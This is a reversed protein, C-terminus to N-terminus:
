QHADLSLGLLRQQLANDGALALDILIVSVLATFNTVASDPNFLDAFHAALQEM